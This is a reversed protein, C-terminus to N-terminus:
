IGEEEKQNKVWQLHAYVPMLNRADQYADHAVGQILGADLLLDSLKLDKHRKLIEKANELTDYTETETKCGFEDLVLLDQNVGHGVILANCSNINNEDIFNNIIQKAQYKNVGVNGLFGSKIGTYAEFAPNIRTNIYVNLSTTLFYHDKDDVREYIIFAAQVLKRGEMFETDLFVIKDQKVNPLYVAMSMIEEQRLEEKTKEKPKEILPAPPEQEGASPDKSGPLATQTIKTEESKTPSGTIKKISIIPSTEAFQPYVLGVNGHHYLLRHLEPNTANTRNGTTIIPEIISGDSAMTKGYCAQSTHADAKEDVKVVKTQVGSEFTIVFKDGLNGYYSGMAVAYYGDNTVRLNDMDSTNNALYSYQPSSQSLATMPMFSKFGGQPGCVGMEVGEAMVSDKAAVFLTAAFLLAVIFKIKRM